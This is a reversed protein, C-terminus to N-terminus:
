KLKNSLILQLIKQALDRAAGQNT